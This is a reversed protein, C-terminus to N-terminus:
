DSKAKFKSAENQKANSFQAQWCQGNGALLQVTLPLATLPLPPLGLKASKGKVTVGTKGSAGAALKLLRLGDPTLERDIYKYGRKFARWCANGDCTGGAPAQDNLILADSGDYM